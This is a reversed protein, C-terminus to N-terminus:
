ELSFVVDIQEGNRLLTITCSTAERLESLVSMAQAPDSLEYGNISLALDNPQLGMRKFMDPEKGPNLTYGVLEGSERDNYPSLSLYEYIKGPDQALEARVEQLASKSDDDSTAEVVRRDDNNERLLSTKAPGAVVKTFDMGDLMLTEHRGSVKIIIRDPLVQALQARTGKIVDDVAYTEQGGQSEIIALGAQDNRSVAVVGTLKINLTTEPADSVVQQQVEEVKPAANAKGFLHSDTISKLNVGQHTNQSSQNNNAPFPSNDFSKNDLLLWTLQATLYALYIVIAALAFASLKRQPLKELYSQLQQVNIQM